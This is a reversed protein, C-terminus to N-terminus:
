DFLEGTLSIALKLTLDSVVTQVDTQLVRSARHPDKSGDYQQDNKM